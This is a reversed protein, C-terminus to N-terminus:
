SLPQWGGKSKSWQLIKDGRNGFVCYFIAAEEVQGRWGSPSETEIMLKFRNLWYGINHYRKKDNKYEVDRSYMTRVNGDLFRIITMVSAHEKLPWSKGPAIPPKTQSQSTPQPQM